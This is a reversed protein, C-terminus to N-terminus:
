AFRKIQMVLMFYAYQLTNPTTLCHLRVALRVPVASSASWFGIQLLVRFPRVGPQLCSIRWSPGLLVLFRSRSSWSRSPLLLSNLL